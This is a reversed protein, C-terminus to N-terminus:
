IRGHRGADIENIIGFGADKLVATTHEVAADFSSALTKSFLLEHDQGQQSM